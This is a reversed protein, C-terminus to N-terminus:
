VRLSAAPPDGRETKPSPGALLTEDHRPLTQKSPRRALEIPYPVPFFYRALHQPPILMQGTFMRWATLTDAM